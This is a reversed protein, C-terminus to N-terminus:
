QGVMLDIAPSNWHTKGQGVVGQKFKFYVSTQGAKLGRFEGAFVGPTGQEFIAIDPYTVTVELYEDDAPVITAGKEDLFVVDLRGTRQGVGVSFSGSVEGDKDVTVRVVGEERVILGEPYTHDWGLNLPSDTCGIVLVTMAVALLTLPSRGGVRQSSM